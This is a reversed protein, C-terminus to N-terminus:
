NLLCSSAGTIHGSRYFTITMLVSLQYSVWRVSNEIKLFIDMIFEQWENCDTICVFYIKHALKQLNWFIVTPYSSFVNPHTNNCPVHAKLKIVYMNYPKPSHKSLTYTVKSYVLKNFLKTVNLHWFLSSWFSFFSAQTPM